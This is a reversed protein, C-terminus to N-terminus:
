SDFMNAAQELYRFIKNCVAVHSFKCMEFQSVIALYHKWQNYPENVHWILTNLDGYCCILKTLDFLFLKDM